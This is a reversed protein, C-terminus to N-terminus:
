HQKVGFTNLCTQYVISTSSHARGSSSIWNCSKAAIWLNGDTKQGELHSISERANQMSLRYSNKTLNRLTSKKLVTTKFRAKTKRSRIQRLLTSSSFWQLMWVVWKLGTSRWGEKLLSDEAVCVHTTWIWIVGNPRELRLWLTASQDMMREAKRLM